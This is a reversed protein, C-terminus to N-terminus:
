NMILVAGLVWLEREDIKFYQEGEPWPITEILECVGGPCGSIKHVEVATKFDRACVQHPHEIMWRKGDETIETGLQITLQM